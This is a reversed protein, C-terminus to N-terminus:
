IYLPLVSSSYATPSFFWTETSQRARTMRENRKGRHLCLHDFFIADGPEFIPAIPPTDPFERYVFSEPITWSFSANNMGSSIVDKFRRPVIEISPADVGCSTLSIWVNLSRVPGKLFAGDQHFEAIPPGPHLRRLFTKHASIVPRQGFFGQILKLLGSVRIMECLQYFGNPSDVAYLGTGQVFARLSKGERFKDFPLYWQSVAGTRAYEIEAEAALDVVDRMRRAFDADLFGRVLLSGHGFIASRLLDPSLTARTAVPIGIPDAPVDEFQPPWTVDSESECIANFGAVQLRMIEVQLQLNPSTRNSSELVRLADTLKGSKELEAARSLTDTVDNRVAM